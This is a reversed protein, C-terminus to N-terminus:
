YDFKVKNSILLLTLFIAFIFKSNKIKMMKLFNLQQREAM